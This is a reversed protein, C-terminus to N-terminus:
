MASRHFMRGGKLGCLYTRHQQQKRRGQSSVENMMLTKTGVNDLPADIPISITADAESSRKELWNVIDAFVIDINHDPEGSTLAHWMGPYLKITKDKSGAKTYLAKSVEPDTVTDAEGHLVFFPLTVQWFCM